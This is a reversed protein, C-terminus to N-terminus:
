GLLGSDYAVINHSGGSEFLILTKTSKFMGRRGLLLYVLLQMAVAQRHHGIANMNLIIVQILIFGDRM